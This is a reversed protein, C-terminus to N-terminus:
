SATLAALLMVKREPPLQEFAPPIEIETHAFRVNGRCNRRGVYRREERRELVVTCRGLSSRLEGAGLEVRGMNGAFTGTATIGDGASTVHLDIPQGGRTGVIRRGDVATMDALQGNMMGRYGSDTAMLEVESGSVRGSPEIRMQWSGGETRLTLYEDRGASQGTGCGAGGLLLGAGLLTLGIKTGMADM